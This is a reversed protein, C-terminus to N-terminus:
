RLGPGDSQPRCWGGTNVDGDPLNFKPEGRIDLGNPDAENQNHIVWSVYSKVTNEIASFSNPNTDQLCYMTLAGDRMWHFYYSGAATNYDQAAVVGGKGEININANFHTRM